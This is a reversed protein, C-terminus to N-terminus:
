QDESQWHKPLHSKYMGPQNYGMPGQKANHGPPSLCVHTPLVTGERTLPPNSLDPGRIPLLAKM